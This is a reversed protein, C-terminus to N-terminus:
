ELTVAFVKGDVREIEIFGVSRAFAVRSFAMQLDARPGFVYHENSKIHEILDM